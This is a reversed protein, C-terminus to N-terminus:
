ERGSGPGMLGSLGSVSRVRRPLPAIRRHAQSETDDAPQGTATSSSTSGEAGERGGAEGLGGSGEGEGDAGGAAEGEGVTGGVGGGRGAAWAGMSRELQGTGRELEDASELMRAFIDVGDPFVIGDRRTDRERDGTHASRTSIRRRVRRLAYPSADDAGAGDADGASGSPASWRSRRGLLPQTSSNWEELWAHYDPGPDPSPSRRRTAASASASASTSTTARALARSGSGGVTTSGPGTGVSIWAGAGTASAREREAREAREARQVRIAAATDAIERSRRALDIVRIPRPVEREAAADAPHLREPPEDFVFIPGEGASASGLGERGVDRGERRREVPLPPSWRSPAPTPERQIGAAGGGAASVGRPVSRPDWGPDRWFSGLPDLGLSTWPDHEDDGDPVPPPAWDAWAIWGDDLRRRDREAVSHATREEDTQRRREREERQRTDRERTRRAIAM